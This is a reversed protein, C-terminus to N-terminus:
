RVGFFKKRAAETRKRGEEFLKREWARTWREAVYGLFWLGGYFALCVLAFWTVVLAVFFAYVQMLQLADMNGVTM